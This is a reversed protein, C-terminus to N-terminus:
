ASPDQVTTDSFTGMPSQCPKIGVGELLYQGVFLRGHVGLRLLRILKHDGIQRSGALVIRIEEAGASGTAPGDAASVAQRRHDGPLSANTRNGRVLCSMRSETAFCTSRNVNPLNGQRVIMFNPLNYLDRAGSHTLDNASPSTGNHHNSNDKLIRFFM